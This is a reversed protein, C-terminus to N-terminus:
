GTARAAHALTEATAARDAARRLEDVLVGAGDPSPMAFAGDRLRGAAARVDDLDGGAVALELTIADVFHRDMTSRLPPLSARDVRPESPPLDASPPAPPACSAIVLLLSLREVARRM